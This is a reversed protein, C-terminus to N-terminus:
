HSGLATTVAGALHAALDSQTAREVRVQLVSTGAPPEALAKRLTRIDDVLEHAVGYGACLAALDAAQPTGFLREFVQQQRPNRRAVGGQELLGFIGGGGDDLVVIQLDPRRELAGTLLGGADHLFTLDGVLLRVQGSPPHDGSPRRPSRALAVGSATSILGDIGALGRNALVTVGPPFGAAALDLDRVPNSSGTVLVDTGVTAAALEQAVLPGSLRGSAAQGDLVSRIAEAGARGATQWQQLWERDAEGPVPASVAPLVVAAQRGADVWDPRRSVVVLEVDDRSLLQTVPRSLTPRGFVVVREVAGGLGPRGLLLRYPTIAGAVRAGSSPEALLPWGAAAAVEAAEPGAGDGAVVVTRPGAPLRVPEPDPQPPVHTLGSTGTLPEPWPRLAASSGSASGDRSGPDSSSGTSEAPLDGAAPAPDEEDPVLPEAFGINLQVPGPHGAPRGLAAAVARAVVNRWGAVQGARRSPAPLEGFWRLATGFIRVQDTTQNAGTGRLEHPRDASLVLLPVGGHAAELVAPHLNAVATGSTTVIAVPRGSGKALGLALFGASREDLRVHLEIGGSGSGGESNPGGEGGDGDGSADAADALAYALPASRSGPCLVVHRVGLEALAAVIVRALATSPNM